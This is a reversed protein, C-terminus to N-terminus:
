SAVRVYVGPAAGLLPLGSAGPARAAVRRDDQAALWAFWDPWWSGPHEHARALWNEFSGEIAPGSWYQYKQRVPPNIVGAIHGSGALVFRVPSGFFTMGKYVSRAPAIHDDRTALCYVPVQIDDLSLTTDGFVMEGRTLKNDLYCNRLYFSHCAEAMRTADANWTLLDFPPPAIGKLYNNVVYPWILDDPRLMNFADAMKSGDLYGTKAMQAEVARVQDEDVFVKLGGAESFDTQATFFTASSIRDDDHAAMYALTCALLTGGVCYGIAAVDREGTAAEIADLAAFVGDQMYRVFDYARHRADPNVWSVLFVTLGQSVAYRVFSKEANLDLIYFKNIWPPVILLPRKFVDPTAPAYQILEILENRFVVQGPTTAMDVGLEFSGPDTQRLRLTGGGAAVDEALMASGRALNEGNTALTHRILEPNTVLFNSPALASSLQKVYFGAKDRAHPDLPAARAVLDDAWASTLGHAQRLFDFIPNDRWEPAGFRKDRPDPAVVPSGADGSLRGLTHGWLALFDTALATRAENARAADSLWYEAVRGISRVAEAVAESKDTAEGTEFPKLYAALAKGGNEVMRAVNQSLREFDPGAPRTAEPGAPPTPASASPSDPADVM